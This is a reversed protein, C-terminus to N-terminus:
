DKQRMKLDLAQIPLSRRAIDRRERSVLREREDAVLLATKNEAGDVRSTEALAEIRALTKGIRAGDARRQERKGSRRGLIALGEEIEGAPGGAAVAGREVFIAIVSEPEVDGAHRMEEAAFLGHKGVQSPPEPAGPEGRPKGEGVCQPSRM